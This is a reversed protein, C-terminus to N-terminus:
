DFQRRGEDYAEDVLGRAKEQDGEALVHAFWRYRRAVEEAPGDMVVRGQELWIARTCLEEITQAAHSVLFITGARELMEDMAERSKQAFTADGTSLAEDVLLIEPRAARSIAFTLRATMGSSYSEMPRDIAEGIGALEEIGPRAQEVQEPTMGMALCGLTINESGSLARILAANVGILTPSSTAYVTGMTPAEVGAIVRLLSSKGSGNRGVLGIFEGQECAFSVGDLAQVRESRARRVGFRAALGTTSTTRTTYKLGVHDVLVTISSEPVPRTRASRESVGM